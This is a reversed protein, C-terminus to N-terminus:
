EMVYVDQSVVSIGAKKLMSDVIEELIFESVRVALEHNYRPSTYANLKVEINLEKNSLAVETGQITIVSQGKVKEKIEQLEKAISQQLENIKM